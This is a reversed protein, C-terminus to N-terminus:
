VRTRPHGHSCEAGKRQRALARVQGVLVIESSGFAVASRILPGINHRKQLNHVMVLCQPLTQVPLTDMRYRHRYALVLSGTSSAHPLRLASQWYSCCGRLIHSLSLAVCSRERERENNSAAEGESADGGERECDDRQERNLTNPRGRYEIEHSDFITACKIQNSKISAISHLVRRTDGSGDFCSSRCCRCSCCCCCSLPARTSAALCSENSSIWDRRSRCASILARSRLLLM